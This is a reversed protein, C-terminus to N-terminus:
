LSQLPDVRYIQPVNLSRLFPISPILTCDDQFSYMTTYRPHTTTTCFRSLKAIITKKTIYWAIAASVVFSFGWYRLCANVTRLTSVRLTPAHKQFRTHTNCVRESLYMNCRYNQWDPQLSIGSNVPPFNFSFPSLFLITRSWLIILLRDQHHWPM